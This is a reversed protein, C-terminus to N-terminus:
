SAFGDWYITDDCVFDNPRTERLEGYRKHLLGLAEPVSVKLMNKIASRAQIVRKNLIHDDISAWTIDGTCAM